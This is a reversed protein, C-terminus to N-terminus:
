HRSNMCVFCCQCTFFVLYISFGVEVEIGLERIGGGGGGAAGVVFDTGGDEGSPPVTRVARPRSGGWEPVSHIHREGM